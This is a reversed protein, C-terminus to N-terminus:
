TEFFDSITRKLEDLADPFDDIDVTKKNEISTQFKEIQNLESLM